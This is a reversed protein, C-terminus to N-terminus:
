KPFKKLIKDLESTLEITSCMGIEGVPAARKKDSFFKKYDSIINDLYPATGGGGIAKSLRERTLSVVDAGSSLWEYLDDDFHNDKNCAAEAAGATVLWCAAILLYSTKM